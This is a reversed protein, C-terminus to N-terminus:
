PRIHEKKVKDDPQSREPLYQAAPLPAAATSHEVTLTNHEAMLKNSDMETNNNETNRM